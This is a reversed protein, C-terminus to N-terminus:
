SSSARPRHRMARVPNRHSSLIVTRDHNARVGRPLRDLRGLRAEVVKRRGHRRLQQRRLQLLLQTSLSTAEQLKRRLCIVHPQVVHLDRVTSPNALHRVLGLVVGEHRRRLRDREVCCIHELAPIVTLERGAVRLRRARPNRRIRLPERALPPAGRQDICSANRILHIWARGTLINRPRRYSFGSRDSALRHATEHIGPSVYLCSCSCSLACSSRCARYSM